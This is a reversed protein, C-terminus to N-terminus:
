NLTTRMPYLRRVESALHVEDNQIAECLLDLEKESTFDLPIKHNHERCTGQFLNHLDDWRVRKEVALEDLMLVQHVIRTKNSPQWLDSDLANGGSCAGSVSNFSSCCLVINSEVEAVSPTSPSVVLAPLVTQRRITTLSPLVLSLHAFQAMHAGELRLLVISRMIDEHTYGKPKYLKEAACEYQQILTKIGVRHKLGAQVLSAVRDVRGSAVALVWQKHDDLTGAKSLLKRSDNLKSMRLQEIQDSKRRAITILAGVGHYMLPVNEHAGHQIRDMIGAFLTSSTLQRCNECTRSETSTTKQCSKAQLYFADDISKYNWPVSREGHIGFPYSNHHNAGEPFTVLVGECAWKKPSGAPRHVEQVARHTGRQKVKSSIEEIEDIDIVDETEFRNGISPGVSMETTARSLAASPSTSPSSPDKSAPYSCARTLAHTRNSM